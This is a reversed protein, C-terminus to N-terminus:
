FFVIMSNIEFTKLTEWIWFKFIIEIFNQQKMLFNKLLMSESIIKFVIKKTKLNELFDDTEVGLM